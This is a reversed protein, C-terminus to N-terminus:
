VRFGIFGLVRFWSGVLRGLQEGMTDLAQDAVGMAQHLGDALKRLLPKPNLTTASGMSKRHLQCIPLERRQPGKYVPAM